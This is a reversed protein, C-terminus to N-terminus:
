GGGAASGGAAHKAPHWPSLVISVGLQFCKLGVSREWKTVRPQVAGHDSFVFTILVCREVAHPSESHPLPTGSFVLAAKTQRVRWPQQLKGVNRLFRMHGGLDGTAYSHSRLEQGEATVM